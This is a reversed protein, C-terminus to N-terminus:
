YINYGYTFKEDRARQLVERASNKVSEPALDSQGFSKMLDDLVKELSNYTKDIEHTLTEAFKNLMPDHDDKFHGDSNLKEEPIPDNVGVIDQFKSLASSVDIKGDVDSEGNLFKEAQGISEKLEDYARFNNEFQQYLQEIKQFGEDIKKAYADSYKEGEEWLYDNIFEKRGKCMKRVDSLYEDIYYGYAKCETKAIPLMKQLEERKVKFDTLSARLKEIDKQLPQLNKRNIRELQRNVVLSSEGLALVANKHMKLQEALQSAIQEWSADFKNNEQEIKSLEQKEAAMSIDIKEQFSRCSEHINKLSAMQENLKNQIADRQDIINKPVTIKQFQFESITNNLSELQNSLDTCITQRNEVIKDINDVSAKLRGRCKITDKIDNLTDQLDEIENGLDTVISHDEEVGLKKDMTSIIWDFGKNITDNEQRFKSLEQEKLAMSADVNEQFFRCNKRINEISDTQEDLKKQIADRQEIVNKPVTIKQSQLESIADNLSKLQNSLRACTEQRSKLREDIEAVSGRIARWSSRMSNIENQEMRKREQQRDTRAALLQNKVLKLQGKKVVFAGRKVYDALLPKLEEQYGSKDRIIKKATGSQKVMDLFGAESKGDM